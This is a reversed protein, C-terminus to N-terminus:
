AVQRALVIREPPVVISVTTGVGLESEIKLTGGHLEILHKALPLGIGAGEHKRGIKSDIQGFRELAKPIDEPAIGIGTDTVAIRLGDAGILASVVVRGGAPTFKVANSLLNLVIQRFRRPDARVLPLPSQLNTSLSVAAEKAPTEILNLCDRIGDTVDVIEECLQLQGADIRSVDLIDTILKLLHTGSTCIIDAYSRYREDGLAGFMEKQLVESFGIIANLPTRLEHSMTALFQSKAENATNAAKLASTLEVAIRDLELKATEIDDIYGSVLTGAFGYGVILLVVATIAVAFLIPALTDEPLAINSDPTIALGAIAVFHVSLIGLALLGASITRGSLTPTIQARGLAAAGLNVGALASVSLTRFPDVEAKGHGRRSHGTRGVVTM